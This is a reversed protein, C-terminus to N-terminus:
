LAVLSASPPLDLYTSLFSNSQCNFTLGYLSIFIQFLQCEFTLRPLYVHTVFNLVVSIAISSSVLHYFNLVQKIPWKSKYSWDLLCGLITLILSKNSQDNPNTLGTLYASLLQTTQKLVPQSSFYYFQKQQCLILGTSYAM